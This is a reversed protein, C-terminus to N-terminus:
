DAYLVAVPINRPAGMNSLSPLFQTRLVRPVLKALCSCENMVLPRCSTYPDQFLTLPSLSRQYQRAGMSISFEGYKDALHMLSATVNQPDVDTINGLLPYAPPQPIPLSM